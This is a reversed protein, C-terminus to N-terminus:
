ETEGFMVSIGNVRGPFSKTGMGRGTRQVNMKPTSGFEQAFYRLLAAGTPTCLEGQVDGGYVPMGELIKATAPTPVRMIGHACKVTGCGVHIPSVVVREVSLKEILMCTGVVDAIADPAGVEHFHVEEVPQGHVYAEAEAIIDYVAKADAKVQNSVSLGDIITRIEGITSHHHSVAVDVYVQNGHYGCKEVSEHWVKVDPLGIHNMQQLFGSLDDILEMLAAM